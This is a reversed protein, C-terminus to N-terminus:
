RAPACRAPRPWAGARASRLASLDGPTDIDLALRPQHLVRARAGCRAAERLHAQLSDARGFATVFPLDLRLGLANTGRRQADPVLVVDASRLLALLERLDRASARPLDAMVVLAHTADRARLEALAADVVRALSSEGPRDRLVAARRQVALSAVDAGDTALLTGHLAGSDACARLVRDCLARALERREDSALAGGLRSKARGFRKAPVVAWPRFADRAATLSM